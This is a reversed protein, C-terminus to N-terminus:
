RVIDMMRSFTPSLCFLLYHLECKALGNGALCQALRGVRVVDALMCLFEM